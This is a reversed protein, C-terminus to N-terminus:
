SLDTRDYVERRHGVELMLIVLRDDQIDAILRYNGVRYRWLGNLNGTLAKGHIRPDSTGALNKNVWGYIMRSVSKDMRLLAKSASKSYDVAYRKM